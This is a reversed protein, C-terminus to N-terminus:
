ADEDYGDAGGERTKMRKRRALGRRVEEGEMVVSYASM